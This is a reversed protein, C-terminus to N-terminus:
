KRTNKKLNAICKHFDNCAKCNDSWRHQLVLPKTLIYKRISILVKQFVFTVKQHLHTVNLCLNISELGFLNNSTCLPIGTNTPVFPGKWHLFPIVPLCQLHKNCFDAIWYFHTNRQIFPNVRQGTESFFFRQLVCILSTTDVWQLLIVKVKM